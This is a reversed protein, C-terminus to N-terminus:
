TNFITDLIRGEDFGQARAKAMFVEDAEAKPLGEGDSWQCYRSDHQGAHGSKLVCVGGHSCYSECQNDM